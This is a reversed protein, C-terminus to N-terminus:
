KNMGTGKAAEFVEFLEKPIIKGSLERLFQKFLSAIAHDDSYDSFDIVGALKYILTFLFILVYL